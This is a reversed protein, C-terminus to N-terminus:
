LMSNVNKDRLLEKLIRTIKVGEEKSAYYRFESGM